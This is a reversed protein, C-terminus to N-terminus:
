EAAEEWDKNKIAQTLKPWKVSGLNYTMDIIVATREANMFNLATGWYNKM